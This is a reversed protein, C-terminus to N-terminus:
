GIARYVAMDDLFLDVIEAREEATVLGEILCRKVLTKALETLRKVRTPDPNLEDAEGLDTIDTEDPIAGILAPINGKVLFCRTHPDSDVIEVLDNRTVVVQAADDSWCKLMHM